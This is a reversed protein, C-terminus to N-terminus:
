RLTSSMPCNEGFRWKVLAYLCRHQVFRTRRESVQWFLDQFEQVRMTVGNDNKELDIQVVDREGNNVFEIENYGDAGDNKREHGLRLQYAIEYM